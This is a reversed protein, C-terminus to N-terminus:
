VLPAAHFLCHLRLQLTLGTIPWLHVLSLRQGQFAHVERVQYETRAPLGGADVRRTLFSDQARGIRCDIVGRDKPMEGYVLGLYRKRVLGKRMQEMLDAHAFAHRAFLVIGSTDRDLRNTPHLVPREGRDALYGLALGVLTGHHQKLSPHTLM